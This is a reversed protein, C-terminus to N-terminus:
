RIAQDSNRPGSYQGAIRHRDFIGMHSVVLNTRPIKPGHVCMNFLPALEFFIFSVTIYADQVPRGGIVQKRAHM